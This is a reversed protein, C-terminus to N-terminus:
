GNIIRGKKMLNEVSVMMFVCDRASQKLDELTGNNNIEFDFDEFNDLATESEHAMGHIESAEERLVKILIGNKSKIYACENLHRVDTVIFDQYPSMWMISKDLAKVWFDQDISRYFSGIAQMIERPTWFVSYEPDEGMAAKLFREDEVEKKDGWLQEKTLGFHEACMSKLQEAFAVKIFPRNYHEKFAEILYDGFQDKGSRAKGLVGIIM